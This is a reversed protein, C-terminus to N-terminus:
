PQGLPRARQEADDARGARALGRQGIRQAPLQPSPAYPDRLDAHVSKM